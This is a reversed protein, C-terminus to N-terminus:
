ASQMLAVQGCRGFSTFHLGAQPRSQLAREAVENGARLRHRADIGLRGIELHHRRHKGGTVEHRQALPSAASAASLATEFVSLSESAVVGITIGEIATRLAGVQTLIGPLSVATVNGTHVTTRGIEASNDRLAFKLEGAM